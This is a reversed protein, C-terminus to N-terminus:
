LLVIFELILVTTFIQLLPFIVTFLHLCLELWLLLLCFFFQNKDLIILCLEHFLEFLVKCVRDCEGLVYPNETKHAHHSSFHQTSSCMCLISNKEIIRNDLIEKVLM